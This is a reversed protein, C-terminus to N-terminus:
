LPTGGCKEVMCAVDFGRFDDMVYECLSSIRERPYTTALGVVHGGSAKAAKLGNISDEFIYTDAPTAGLTKMGTLYCDPAPKSHLFHEATLFATFLRKAEPRKRLVAEMKQENSSTCVATRIGKIRLEDIFPLVGPIYDFTMQSEFEYLKRTIEEVQASCSSGFLSEYIHTLTQGKVAQGIGDRHLYDRGVQEWFETYQGETDIVVGDFDFLVIM